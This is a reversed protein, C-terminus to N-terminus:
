SAGDDDIITGLGSFDTLIAGSAASLEVAFTEDLEITADPRITVKVSLQLVGPAFNLTGSSPTYDGPGTATGDATIYNVKVTGSAAKSLSVTFVATRTGEDGEHVAVDGIALRVGTGPDDDLITGTGSADGLTASTPSSLNLAFTENAEDSSDGVVGVKVKATAVGPAFSVTGTKALHDAPATATGPSTAYGVTVTSGSLKSLSVTFVAGRTGTNGEHVSVDGVSVTPLTDPVAEAVTITFPESAVKVFSNSASM